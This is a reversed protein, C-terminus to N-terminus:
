FKYPSGLRCPGGGWPGYMNQQTNTVCTGFNNKALSSYIQQDPAFFKQVIKYGALKVLAQFFNGFFLMKTRGCMNKKLHGSNDLVLKPLNKLM